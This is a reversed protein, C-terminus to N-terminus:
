RDNSHDQRQSWGRNGTGRDMRHRISGLGIPADLLAGSGAGLTLASATDVMESVPMGRLAAVGGSEGMADEETFFPGAAATATRSVTLGETGTSPGSKRIPVAPAARSAAPLFPAPGTNCCAPIM